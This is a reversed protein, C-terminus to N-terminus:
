NGKNTPKLNFGCNILTEKIWTSDVGCIEAQPMSNNLFIRSGVDKFTIFDAYAQEIVGFMLLSEYTKNFQPMIKASAIKIRGKFSFDYKSCPTDHKDKFWQCHYNEVPKLILYDLGKNEKKNKWKNRKNLYFTLNAADHRHLIVKNQCTDCKGRTISTIVKNFKNM